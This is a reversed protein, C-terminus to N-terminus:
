DPSPAIIECWHIHTSYEAIRQLTFGIGNNEDMIMWSADELRALSIFYQGVVYHIGRLNHINPDIIM